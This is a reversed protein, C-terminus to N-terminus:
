QKIPAIMLTCQVHPERNLFAGMDSMMNVGISLPERLALRPGHDIRQADPVVSVGGAQHRYSDESLLFLHVKASAIHFDTKMQASADIAAGSSGDLLRHAYFSLYLGHGGPTDKLKLYSSESNFTLQQYVKEGFRMEEQYLLPSAGKVVFNQGGYESYTDRGKCEYELQFLPKAHAESTLGLALIIAALVKVFKM